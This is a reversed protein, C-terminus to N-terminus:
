LDKSDDILTIKRGSKEAMKLTQETGGASGNFVAIVRSAHDVMWRNRAKFCWARYGPCIFDIRDSADTIKSFMEKLEESRNKEVGPFPVACVLHLDIGSAKLDLVELAAWTDVGPAMGTIFTDIGKKAVSIIEMRLRERVKIEDNRIKDPRHGTFCCSKKIDIDFM